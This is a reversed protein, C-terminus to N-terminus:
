ELGSGFFGSGGFGLNVLDGRTCGDPQRLFRIRRFVLGPINKLYVRVRIPQLSVLAEAIARALPYGFIKVIHRPVSALERLFPTQSHNTGQYYDEPAEM